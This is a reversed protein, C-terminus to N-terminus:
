VNVNLWDAVSRRMENALSVAIELMSRSLRAPRSPEPGQSSPARKRELRAIQEDLLRGARSAQDQKKRDLWDSLLLLIRRSQRLTQEAEPELAQNESQLRHQTIAVQLLLYTRLQPQSRRLLERLQLKKQWGAGFEFILSDAINRVQDFNANIAARLRRARDISSRLNGTTTEEHFCAIQRINTVFTDILDSVTDKVWIRDFIIWMAFLGLLIGLVDDRAAALSTQPGFGRLHTLYFAFATQAGAYSIRPSSTTIWAAIATVAAFLLTFQGIGDIYPLIFVQSTIGLGVGGIIAGLVRLLQKQRSSGITSLATIMCTALSPSLGPWAIANYFFYCSLAALTGKLAFHIHDPNSFADPKFLRSPQDFDLDSPQYEALPQLGLYVQPIRKITTQIGSLFSYPPAEQFDTSLAAIARTNRTRLADRIQALRDAALAFGPKEEAPFTEHGATVQATLDVLRGALAVIASMETYGPSGQLSRALLQRLGATGTMAYQELKQQTREDFARGDALSRLVDEVVRIRDLLRDQLEDTPHFSRAVLEVAATVVAALLVSLATWLTNAFLLDTNAPFDWATLTTVALFGFATGVLYQTLSSILFFIIFLTGAVWMFHLFPDGTFLRLTLTLYLLSVAVASLATTVSRVTAAASDRSFLLTYYAGLAAGPIRFVMICWMVITAAITMRAVTWGRGPFPELEKLLFNGFWQWPSQSSATAPASHVATAM